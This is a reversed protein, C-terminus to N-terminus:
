FNVQQQRFHVFTISQMNQMQQPILNTVDIVYYM